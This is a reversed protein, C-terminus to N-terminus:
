ISFVSWLSPSSVRREWHEIYERDLGSEHAIMDIINHKYFAVGPKEAVAEGIMRDGSGYERSITIVIHEM